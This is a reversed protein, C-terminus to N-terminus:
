QTGGNIAPAEAVHVTTQSTTTLNPVTGSQGGGAWIVTWTITSTLTRTAPRDYTHGCTPSAKKPDTGTTWATGQGCIISRKGDGPRWLVKTPTATATVSLGPVAATASRSSWSSGDVWLWVPVYSLVTAKSADPNTRIAPAPLQLRARATRALAAPDVQPATQMWMPPSQSPGGKGDGILCIQVYWAGKGADAPPAPQPDAQEYHCGPDLGDDSDGDSADDSGGNGGNGGNGGHPGNAPTHVDVNCEASKPNQECDVGGVGDDALAAASPLAVFSVALLTIAANRIKKLM